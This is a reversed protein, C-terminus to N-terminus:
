KWLKILTVTYYMCYGVTVIAMYEIVTESYYYNKKGLLLKNTM